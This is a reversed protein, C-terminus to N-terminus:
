ATTPVRSASRSLVVGLGIMLVIAASFGLILQTFVKLNKLSHM